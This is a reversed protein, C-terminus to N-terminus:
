EIRRKGKAGMDLGDAIGSPEVRLFICLVQSRVLEVVMVRAQAVM